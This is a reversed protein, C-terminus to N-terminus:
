NGAEGSEVAGGLEALLLVPDMGTVGWEAAWDEPTRSFGRSAINRLYGGVKKNHYWDEGFSEVLKKRLHPEMVAAVLKGGSLFRDNSMLYFAEENGTQPILTAAEMQERYEKGSVGTDEQIKRQFLYRGAAERLDYLKLFRLTEAFEAHQDQSINSCRKQLWASEELLHTMLEGFVMPVIPNGLFRQEFPLSSDINYYFQSEGLCRLFDRCDDLGGDAIMTIRTNRDNDVPFCHADPDKGERDKFDFRLYRQDGLDIGIDKLTKEALEEIKDESFADDFKTKSLLIPVDYARVRRLEQDLASMCMKELLPEYEDQTEELIQQALSEMEDLNWGETEALFHYYNGLGLDESASHLDIEINLLYVNANTVLEGAALYLIRRQNRDPTQALQQWFRRLYIKEKDAQINATGDYELYNDLTPAVRSWVTRDQLFRLSKERLSREAPNGAKEVLEQMQSIKKKGLLYAYDKHAREIEPDKGVGLTEYWASRVKSALEEAKERIRDIEDAQGADLLSLALILCLAM